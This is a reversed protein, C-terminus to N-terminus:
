RHRCSSRLSVVFICVCHKENNALPPVIRVSGGAGMVTAANMTMPTSLPAVVEPSSSMTLRADGRREAENPIPRRALDARGCCPDPCTRGPERAWPQGSYGLKAVVGVLSPRLETLIQPNRGPRPRNRGSTRELGSDALAPSEGSEVEDRGGGWPAGQLLFLRVGSSAPRRPVAGVDPSPRPPHQPVSGPRRPAGSARWWRMGTRAPSSAGAAGASTAGATNGPPLSQSRATRPHPPPPPCTHTNRPAHPQAPESPQHAPPHARGWITGLASAVTAAAAAANSGRSTCPKIGNGSTGGTGYEYSEAAM